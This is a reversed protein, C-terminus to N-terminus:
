LKQTAAPSKIMDDSGTLFTGDLLAMQDAKGVDAMYRCCM